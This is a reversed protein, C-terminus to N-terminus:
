IQADSERLAPQRTESEESWVGEVRYRDASLLLFLSAGVFCLFAALYLFLDLSGTTALSRSMLINGVAIACGLGATMVGLVTSFVPMPFHRTVLFPLVDVESGMSLGVLLIATAVAVFSDQGSALLLLGIVPLLFGVVAVLHPSFYDLALGAIFRGAISAAGFIAVMAAADADSIGQELIVIKLSSTALAFPMTVLFSGALMIWTAPNQMLVRYAGGRQRRHAAPRDSAPILAIMAIAGIACFAAVALYGSRWGHNAVFDTILLSGIAGVLAPSSGIIALATGRRKDFLEAITRSYVTATTTSCVILQAAYIGLFLYINATVLSFAVMFFPFSLAGVAAVRRVGYRDTLQGAIPQCVIMLISAVGLMAWQSRSWGFDEIIYPAFTSLIFNNLLLGSGMGLVAGLLPARFRRFEEIGTLM